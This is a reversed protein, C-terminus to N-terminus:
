NLPATGFRVNFPICYIVVFNYDTLGVGSPVNYTQMGTTSALNALKISNQSNLGGSATTALFVGLQPGNSAAFDSGLILSIDAGTQQLTASGTVSYGMNGSFVGTRSLGGAPLVQLSLPLSSIGEVTATVLATGAKLGFALGESTITLVTTDSSSWTVVPSPMEQNSGTYAKATLPLSAGIELTNQTTSIVVKAVENPNNPVTVLVSDTLAGPATVVIWAQGPTLASVLGTNNVSAVAPSRSEWQIMDSQSEGSEDSYVASIQFTEGPLLSVSTPDVTIVPTLFEPIIETQICAQLGMAALACVMFNLKANM